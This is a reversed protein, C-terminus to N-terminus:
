SADVMVEMDDEVNLYHMTTNINTLNLSKKAHVIGYKKYIM